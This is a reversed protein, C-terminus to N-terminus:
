PKVKRYKRGTMRAAFLLSERAGEAQTPASVDNSLAPALLLEKPKDGCGM